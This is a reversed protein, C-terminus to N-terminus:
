DEDALMDCQPCHGAPARGARCLGDLVRQIAEPRGIKRAIQEPDLGRDHLKVIRADIHNFM